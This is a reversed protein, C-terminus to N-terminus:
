SQDLLESKMHELLGDLWISDFQNDVYNFSLITRGQFHNVLLGLAPPATVQSFQYLQTIPCDFIEEPEPDMSGTYSFWFSSREKGQPSYRVIKGYKELNLWSGAQMLPLMARESQHKIAIKNQERLHNFLVNRDHLVDLPAQAFLFTVQNGFIPFLSKRKRLNVAYPVCYAQGSELNGSHQLARMMCGIFYLSTGSLGAYKRAFKLIQQSENENCVMVKTNVRNPELPKTTTLISSLKDLQDINKKSKFGLKIKQWLNWQKTIQEIASENEKGEQRETHFLHYLILEAGKADCAPHYWRLIFISQNNKTVLHLEFPASETIPQTLNLINSVTNSTTGLTNDVDVHQHVPISNSGSMDWNYQRGQNKIRASARPHRQNLQDCKQKIETIDPIGDLELVLACYNGALGSSRIENDMMLTFKDAPNLREPRLM